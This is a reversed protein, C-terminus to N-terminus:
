FRMWLLPRVDEEIQLEWAVAGCRSHDFNAHQCQGPGEVFWQVGPSQESRINGGARVDSLSLSASLPDCAHLVTRPAAVFYSCAETAPHFVSIM